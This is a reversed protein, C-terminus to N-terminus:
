DDDEDDDTPDYTPVLYTLWEEREDSEADGAFLAKAFSSDRQAREDDLAERVHIEAIGDWLPRGNNELVMLEDRLWNANVLEDAARDDEAGFCMIARGEIEAVYVGM